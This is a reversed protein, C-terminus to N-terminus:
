FFQNVIRLYTKQTAEAFDKLLMDELFKQRYQNM